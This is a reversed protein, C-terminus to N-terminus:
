RWRTPAEPVLTERATTAIDMWKFYSSERWHVHVLTDELAGEAVKLYVHHDLGADTSRLAQSLWELAENMEEIKKSVDLITVLSSDTRLKEQISRVVVWRDFHATWVVRENNRSGLPGGLKLLSTPFAISIGLGAARLRCDSYLWQAWTLCNLVREVQCRRRPLDPKWTLLSVASQDVQM